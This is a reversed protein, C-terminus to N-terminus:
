ELNFNLQMYFDVIEEGLTYTVKVNCTVGASVMNFKARPITLTVTGTEGVNITETTTVSPPNQFFSTSGSLEYTATGNTMQFENSNIFNLKMVANRPTGQTALITYNVVLVNNELYQSSITALNSAFANVVYQDTGEQPIITIPMKTAVKGSVTGKIYLTTNWLAYSSSILVLMVVLIIFIFWNNISKKRRRIKTKM